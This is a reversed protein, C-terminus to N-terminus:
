STSSRSEAIELKPRSSASDHLPGIQALPVRHTQVCGQMADPCETKRHWNGTKNSSGASNLKPADRRPNRPSRTSSEMPTFRHDIAPKAPLVGTIGRPEAQVKAQDLEVVEGIIRPAGSSIRVHSRQRDSRPAETGIALRVTPWVRSSSAPARRARSSQHAIWQCHPQM